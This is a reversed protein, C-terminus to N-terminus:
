VALYRSYITAIEARTATAGPALSTDSRGEVLGNEVAWAMAVAAYDSVNDADAYASLDFESASSGANRWLATILQERTISYDPAFTTASVGVMVGEARCWAIAEAYWTGDTVDDFDSSDTATGNGLRYMIQAVMARSAAAEPAFNTEGTGVMLESDFVFQVAAEYWVGEAIDEFINAVKNEGNDDDDDTGAEEEDDDVNVVEEEDDDAYTDEAFASLSFSMCLALCLLIAALKRFKEM